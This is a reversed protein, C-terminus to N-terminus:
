LINNIEPYEENNFHGLLLIAKSCSEYFFVQQNNDLFSVASNIAEEIDDAKGHSVFLLICQSKEEWEQRALYLNKRANVINGNKLSDYSERLRDQVFSSTHTNIYFGTFILVLICCLVGLAGYLRYM